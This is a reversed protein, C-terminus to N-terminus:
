RINILYDDYLNAFNRELHTATYNILYKERAASGMKRLRDKQGALARIGEAFGKGDEPHYLFGDVGHEIIEPIAGIRSAIVPLGFQMAELVVLPFCEESFHTPFVFIDADQYLDWKEDGLVPGALSVVEDLGSKEIMGTMRKRYKDRWFAGGIKLSVDCNEERLVQMIRLLQYIGKSPFLNSVFLLRTSADPNERVNFEIQPVGNPIVATQVHNLKLASIERELLNESLHIVISDQFVYRYLRRLVLNGSRQEIGRYHLHYIPVAGGKRIQRVLLLDRWFGKGVPMISFYVYDPNIERLTKGLRRILRFFLGIKRITTKRLESIDHSFRIELLYRDINRNILENRYVFDNITSVGHVPPPLQILYLIRVKKSM